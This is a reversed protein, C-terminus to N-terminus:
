AGVLARSFDGATSLPPAFVRQPRPSASMLRTVATVVSECDLDTTVGADLREVVRRVWRSGGAVIPIGAHVATALMGSPADLEYLLMLADCASVCTGLHAETLYGDIVIVRGATAPARQAELIAQGTSEDTRGAVLVVVRPPLDRLADLILQPHKSAGVAGLLGLVYADGALGLTARADVRDICPLHGAPDRVPEIWRYGRRATVVGFADTLFFLKTRPWWCRLILSLAIKACAVASDRGGRMSLEPTRMIVLRMEPLEARGYRVAAFLMSLLLRDADPVIMRVDHTGVCARLAAAVLRRAPDKSSGVVVVKLVNRSALEGLHIEFERSGVAEQTTLLRPATGPDSAEVLTRIYHLRHGSHEFQLFAFATSVGALIAVQM